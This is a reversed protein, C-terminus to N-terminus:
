RWMSRRGCRCSSRWTIGPSRWRSRSSSAASGRTRAHHASRLDHLLRLDPALRKAASADSNRASRRALLRAGSLLAAHSGLFFLAIDSRRAAHLVLIAFFCLLAAFWVTSGWQGPRFGSTAEVTFLLVVIAFGPRIGSTSATSACARIELRHRDRRRARAAVAGRGAAAPEAVPRHDAALAPRLEATFVLTRVAGAHRARQRDRARQQAAARRFRALRFNFTLLTALAAIQYHRADSWGTHSWLRSM